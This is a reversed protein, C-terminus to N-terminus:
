LNKSVLFKSGSECTHRENWLVLPSPTGALPLDVEAERVCRVWRPVSAGDTRRGLLIPGCTGDRPLFGWGLTRLFRPTSSPAHPM